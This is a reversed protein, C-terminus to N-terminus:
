SVADVPDSSSAVLERYFIAHGLSVYWGIVAGLALTVLLSLAGLALLQPPQHEFGDTYVRYGVWSMASVGPVLAVFWVWYSCDLAVARMKQGQMLDISKRLCQGARLEPSDIKLYWCLRYRYIVWLLVLSAPISAIVAIFEIPFGCSGFVLGLVALCPILSGLVWMGTQLQERFWLWFMGLPMRFGVFAEKLWGTADKRAAKLLVATVGAMMLGSFLHQVFTKFLSASYMRVSAEPTPSTFGMGESAAMLKAKQFEALSEVGFYAYLAATLGVVAGLIAGLLAGATMAKWLWGDRWLLQWAEARIEKNTKM